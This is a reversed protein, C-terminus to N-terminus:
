TCTGKNTPFGACSSQLKLIEQAFLLCKNLVDPCATGVQRGVLGRAVLGRGMAVAGKMAM